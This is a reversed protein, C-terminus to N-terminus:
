PVPYVPTGVGASFYDCARGQNLAIELLGNANEYCLPAGPAVDSFTRARPVEGDGIRLSVRSDLSAARVGTILNGFHDVYIIEFLEGPWTECDFRELLGAEPMVGLALQAALPAFLDRGHFSASLREPQWGVHWAEFKEARSALVNFLGNDPGVYWRGDARFFAPRRAASGVGPDVVALFVTGAPFAEAYSALLWASAKPNYLPADAFLDIIPLQPAQQWIVAKMQGIYPGNFGFDTFLVIM